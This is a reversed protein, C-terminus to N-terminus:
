STGNRSITLRKIKEAKSSNPRAANNIHIINSHLTLLVAELADEVDDAEYTQVPM